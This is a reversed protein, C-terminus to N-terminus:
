VSVVLVSNGLSAYCVRLSDWHVAKAPCYIRLQLAIAIPHESTHSRSTPPFLTKIVKDTEIEAISDGAAVEEGEKKKWSAINGAHHTKSIIHWILGAKM